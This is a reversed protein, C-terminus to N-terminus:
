SAAPPLPRGALQHYLAVLREANRRLDIRAEAVQRNYAGFARCRAPEALLELLAAALAEPRRRPVILGGQGPVIWEAISPVDTVVAPLGCAMAELLSLSSGDSLAASVYLDGLNYYDPLQETPVFGTDAFRVHDAVGLTAALEGLAARLPGRGLLFLLASPERAVVAPMARLLDEQGYVPELKRLNFIVKRDAVQWHARMAARKEADPRFLAIDAGLQPLVHVKAPAIGSLGVLTDAVYQADSWVADAGRAATLLRRRLYPVHHANPMTPDDLVDSGWSRALLPHLGARAADYADATMWGAQVVDFRYTAMLRRLFREYLRHRLLFCLRRAVPVNAQLHRCPAAHIRIPLAELGAHWPHPECTAVHLELRPDTALSTLIKHEIVSHPFPTSYLVRLPRTPTTM